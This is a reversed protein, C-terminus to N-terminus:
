YIYKKNIQNALHGSKPWFRTNKRTPEGTNVTHQGHTSRTNVTHQGHTSRQQIYKGMTKQLTPVTVYRIQRAPPEEGAMGLRNRPHRRPRGGLSAVGVGVVERRRALEALTQEASAQQGMQAAIFDLEAPTLHPAM